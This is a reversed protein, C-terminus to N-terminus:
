FKLQLKVITELSRKTSVNEQLRYTLRINDIEILTAGEFNSIAQYVEREIEEILCKKAESLQTITTDNKIMIKSKLQKNAIVAKLKKLEADTFKSFDIGLTYKKKM